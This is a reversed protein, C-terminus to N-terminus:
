FKVNKAFDLLDSKLAKWQPKITPRDSAMDDFQDIIDPILATGMIAIALEEQQESRDACPKFGFVHNETLVNDLRVALSHAKEYNPHNKLIRM